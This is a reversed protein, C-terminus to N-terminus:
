ICKYLLSFSYLSFISKQVQKVNDIRNHTCVLPYLVEFEV